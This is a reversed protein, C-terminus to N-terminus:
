ATVEVDKDAAGGTAGAPLFVSEVNNKTDAVGGSVSNGGSFVNGKYTVGGVTVELDLNNVWPAGTASNRPYVGRSLRM